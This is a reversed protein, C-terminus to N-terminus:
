SASTGKKNLVKRTTSELVEVEADTEMETESASTFGADGGGGGLLYDAVDNLKGLNPVAKDREKGRFEKPNLRRIRKSLDIRKTTIAYHRLNM